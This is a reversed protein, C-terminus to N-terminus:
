DEHASPFYYKKRGFSIVKKEFTHKNKKIDTKM